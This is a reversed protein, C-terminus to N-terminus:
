SRFIGLSKTKLELEVKKGTTRDRIDTTAGNKQVSAIGNQAAQKSSYMESTAIIEGNDAHLVFYYTQKTDKESKILEFYGM